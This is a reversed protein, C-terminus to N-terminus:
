GAEGVGHAREAGSDGLGARRGASCGGEGEPAEDSRGVLKPLFPPFSALVYRRMFSSVSCAVAEAIILSAVGRAQQCGPGPSTRSRQTQTMLMLESDCANERAPSRPAKGLTAERLWGGPRTGRRLAQRRSGVGGRATVEDPAPVSNEKGKTDRAWM